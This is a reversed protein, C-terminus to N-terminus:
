SQQAEFLSPAFLCGPRRISSSMGYDAKTATVASAVIEEFLVELKTKEAADSGTARTGAGRRLADAIAHEALDHILLLGASAPRAPHECWNRHLEALGSPLPVADESPGAPARLEERKRFTLGNTRRYRLWSRTQMRQALAGVWHGL